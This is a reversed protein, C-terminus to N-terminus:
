ASGSARTSSHAVRPGLLRLTGRSPGSVSPRRRWPHSRRAPPLQDPSRMRVSWGIRGAEDRPRDQRSRRQMGREPRPRLTTDDRARAEYDVSARHDHVDRHRRELCSRPRASRCRCGRRGRRCDRELASESGALEGRAFREALFRKRFSEARRARREALREVPKRGFSQDLKPRVATSDNRRERLPLDFGVVLGSADELGCGCPERGLPASRRCRASELRRDPSLAAGAGIEVALELCVPLKVHAQDRPRLVGVQAAEHLGEPASPDSRDEVRALGTSGSADLAIELFMGLNCPQDGCPVCGPGGSCDLPM